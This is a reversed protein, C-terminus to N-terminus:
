APRKELLDFFGREIEKLQARIGLEARGLSSELVCDGSVLRDDGLVELAVDKCDVLRERWEDLEPVPVRLVAHSGDRIQEVAVRVVGSLLLPDLQAERHLVQAAIALALKVVEAEASAFYHARETDFEASLKSMRERESELRAEFDASCETRVDESKRRAEVLQFAFQEAQLRLEERLAMLEDHAAYEANPMSAVASEVGSSEERTGVGRFQLRAVERKRRLPEESLRLPEVAGKSLSRMM